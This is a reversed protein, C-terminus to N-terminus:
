QWPTPVDVMVERLLVRIDDTVEGGGTVGLLFVRELVPYKIACHQYTGSWDQQQFAGSFLRRLNSNAFTELRRRSPQFYLISPTYRKFVCTSM